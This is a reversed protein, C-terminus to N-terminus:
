SNGNKRTWLELRRKLQSLEVIARPVSKVGFASKGYDRVTVPIETSLLKEHEIYWYLEPLWLFSSEVCRQMIPLLKSKRFAKVGSTDSCKIGLYEKQIFQYIKSNAKRYFPREEISGELYKSGTVIDFFELRILSHCIFDLNFSLDAPQFIVKETPALITGFTLANGFSPTELHLYHALCIKEWDHSGNEVVMIRSANDTYKILLDVQEQLNGKYNYVPIVITHAEM